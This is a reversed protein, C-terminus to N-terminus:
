VSDASASEQLGQLIYRRPVRPTIGCLIEYAVTEAWQALDEAWVAAGSQTGLIAVPDGERAAPAESLDVMCQDMSIRGVIPVRRGGAVLFGRGSLRRQLGDAYGIPVLGITAEQTLVHAHGYGLRAGRPLREVRVLASRVEMVPQLNLTPFARADPRYGYLLLGCRVLHFHAHPATLVAGSNAAHLLPPEVGWRRLEQLAEEFINLQQDTALAPDEEGRALHTFCGDVAIQPTQRLALAVERIQHPLIGFRGMGSDIKLHVHIRGGSHQAATTLAETQAATGLTLTLDHRMATVLEDPAAYGMVLIPADIGARRLAIGEDVCAVGLWQAGAQLATQAVPIAGHGYGDAKIVALLATQASLQGRITRVNAALRDLFVLAETARRSTSSPLPLDLITV